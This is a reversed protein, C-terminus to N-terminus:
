PGQPAGIAAARLLVQELADLKAKVQQALAESLARKRPSLVVDRDLVGSKFEAERLEQILMRLDMVEPHYQSRDGQPESAVQKQMLDGSM